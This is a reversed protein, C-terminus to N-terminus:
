LYVGTDGDPNLMRDYSFVYDSERNQRLDFYKVSGYGLTEAAEWVDEEKLQCVGKKRREGVRQSLSDIWAVSSASRTMADDEAEEGGITTDGDFSGDSSSAATAVERLAIWILSLTQDFVKWRAPTGPTRISFYYGDSPKATSQLTLRTGETVCRVAGNGEQAGFVHDCPTSM